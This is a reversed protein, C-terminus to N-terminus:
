RKSFISCINIKITYSNRKKVPYVPRGAPLCSLLINDLLTPQNEKVTFYYNAKRDEVINAAFERQTHLADATIDKNVILKLRDFQHRYSWGIWEDRRSSQVKLGFCFLWSSFGM